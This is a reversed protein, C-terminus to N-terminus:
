SGCNGKENSQSSDRVSNVPFSPYVVLINPARGTLTLPTLERFHDDVIVQRGLRATLGQALIRATVDNGGGAAATVFRLPRNPYTQAGAASAALACLAFLAASARAHAFLRNEM